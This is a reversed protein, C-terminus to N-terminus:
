SQGAAESTLLPLAADRESIVLPSRPWSIGLIPDDWRVGTQADKVYPVSILYSVETGPTLTLYGHACGPPVIVSRRNSASLEHGVWQHRTPSSPRLDTVVDFLVGATCRVAKTEAYPDRQYHLGRMTGPSDNYSIVYQAVRADVGLAALEEADYLRAFFGRRDPILEPEVLFVGDLVSETVTM